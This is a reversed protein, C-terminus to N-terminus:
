KSRIKILCGVPQTRVLGLRLASGGPLQGIKRMRTRSFIGWSLPKRDAAHLGSVNRLWTRLRM